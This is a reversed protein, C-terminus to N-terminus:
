AMLRRLRLRKPRGASYVHGLNSRKPGLRSLGIDVEHSTSNLQVTQAGNKGSHLSPLQVKHRLMSNIREDMDACQSSTGMQRRETFNVNKPNSDLIKPKRMKTM